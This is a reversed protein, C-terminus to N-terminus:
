KLEWIGDRLLSIGSEEKLLDSVTFLPSMEIEKKNVASVSYPLMQINQEYKGSTVIVEPLKISATNLQLTLITDSILEITEEFSKYSVHSITLYYKGKLLDPFFAEGNENTTGFYKESISINASKIPLNNEHDLLKIKTNISQAPSSFQILILAILLIVSKMFNRVLIFHEILLILSFSNFNGQLYLWAFM